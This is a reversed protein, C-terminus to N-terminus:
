SSTVLFRRMTRPMTARTYGLDYPGHPDSMMGAKRRSEYATEM